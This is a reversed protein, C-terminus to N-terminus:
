EYFAMANSGSSSSARGEHLGAGRPLVQIPMADGANTTLIGFSRCPMVYTGYTAGGRGVPLEVDKGAQLAAVQMAFLDSGLVGQGIPQNNERSLASCALM